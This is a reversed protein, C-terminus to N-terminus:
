RSRLFRWALIGTISAVAARWALYVYIAQSMRQYYGRLLIGVAYSTGDTPVEGPDYYRAVGVGSIGALSTQYCQDSAQLPRTGSTAKLINRKRLSSTMLSVIFRLDPSTFTPYEWQKISHHPPLMNLFDTMVGLTLGWLLLPRATDTSNAQNRLFWRKMKQIISLKTNAEPIFGKITTCYQSESPILRIASFIMQGM